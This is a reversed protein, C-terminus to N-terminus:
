RSFQGQPQSYGRVGDESGARHYAVEMLGRSAIRVPGVDEVNFRSLWNLFCKGVSRWVVLFSCLRASHHVHADEVSFPSLWTLSYKRLM